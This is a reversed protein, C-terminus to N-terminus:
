CLDCTLQEPKWVPSDALMNLDCGRGLIRGACTNCVAIKGTFGVLGMAKNAEAPPAHELWRRGLEILERRETDSESRDAM